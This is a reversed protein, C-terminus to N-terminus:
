GPIKEASQIRQDASVLVIGVRLRGFRIKVPEAHGRHKPRRDLKDQKQPDYPVDRPGLMQAQDFAEHHDRAHTDGRTRHPDHEAMFQHVLLVPQFAAQRFPQQRHHQIRPESGLVQQHVVDMDAGRAVRHRGPIVFM